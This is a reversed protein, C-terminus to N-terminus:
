ELVQQEEWDLALDSTLREKSPFKMAMAILILTPIILLWYNETLMYCIIGVIAPFECTALYSIFATRYLNLKEEVDRGSNRISELKRNFILRGIFLCGLAFVSVVLFVITSYPKLHDSKVPDIYPMLFVIISFLVVGAMLAITFIRLGRLYENSGSKM